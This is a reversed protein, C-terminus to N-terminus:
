SREADSKIWHAAYQYACNKNPKYCFKLDDGFLNCHSFKKTFFEIRIAFVSPAPDLLM